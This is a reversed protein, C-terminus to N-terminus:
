NLGLKEKNWKYREQIYGDYIKRAEDEEAVFENWISDFEEESGALILKPLTVGWKEQIKTRAIGEESDAPPNVGEIEPFLHVKDSVWEEMQKYAEPSEEKYQYVKVNDLFMMYTDLCAYQNVFEQPSTQKLEAIEPKVKVQGDVETRTVDPDGTYFDQQGEDSLWYSVLEIIKELKAEDKNQNPIMTILWGALNGGRLKPADGNSNAPGDVLIYRKGTKQNFTTLASKRGKWSGLYCFYRGQAVKENIQAAQDVFMDKSILGDENAQRFTKLWMIHDPDRYRLTDLYNGNEDEMPTALFDALQYEFSFCGKEDFPDSGFPILDQGDVQPFQEKAKKLASLFGEPTSMDPSGIAQYIDERVMMGDSPGTKIVPSDLAELPAILNPYAYTNGDEEQYWKLASEYANDYFEPCYKDALENYSYLMNGDILKKLTDTYQPVTILDPLSGSAILTTLKEDGSTAPVIFEIDVNMKEKIYKSTSDQGWKASFSPESIYWTLKVTGDGSSERETNCGALASVSLVTAALLTLTRKFKLNM